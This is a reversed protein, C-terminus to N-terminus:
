WYKSEPTYKQVTSNPCKQTIILGELVNLTIMLGELVYSIFLSSCHVTIQKQLHTMLYVHDSLHSQKYLFYFRVTILYIPSTMLYIHCNM